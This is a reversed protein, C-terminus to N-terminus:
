EFAYRRLKQVARFVSHKAASEGIALAESIEPISRGEFHRLVFAGREQASLTGMGSALRERLQGLAVMQDPLPGEDAVDPVEGDVAAVRKRRRVLDLAHNAAIRQLWTSFSARGDYRNLSRFARLFSEQVVDESDGENGTIRYALRFVSRSHREVLVQYADRDGALVQAIVEGDAAQM